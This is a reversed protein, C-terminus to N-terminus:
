GFLSSIGMSKHAFTTQTSKQHMSMSPRMRLRRERKHPTRHAMHLQIAKPLCLAFACRAECKDSADKM